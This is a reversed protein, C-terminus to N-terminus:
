FLPAPERAKWPWPDLLVPARPPQDFDFAAWGDGALPERVTPRSDPRGDTAPDLGSGDINVLYLDFNPGRGGMGVNSGNRRGM